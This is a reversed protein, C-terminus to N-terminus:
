YEREKRIQNGHASFSFCDKGKLVGKPNEDTPSGIGAFDIKASQAEFIFGSPPPPLIADGDHRTKRKGAAIRLCESRLPFGQHNERLTM